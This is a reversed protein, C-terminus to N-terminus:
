ERVVLGGLTFDFEHPHEQALDKSKSLTEAASIGIYALLLERVPGDKDYVFAECASQIESLVKDAKYCSASQMNTANV